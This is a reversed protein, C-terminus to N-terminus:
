PTAEMAWEPLATRPIAVQWRGQMGRAPVPRTLWDARILVSLYRGDLDHYRAQERLNREAADVTITQQRSHRWTGAVEVVGLVLGALDDDPGAWPPHPAPAWGMMGLYDDDPAAKSRHIALIGLFGSLVPGRRTELTKVGGACLCAWPDHLTICPLTIM